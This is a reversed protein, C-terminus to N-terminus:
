SRANRGAWKAALSPFFYKKLAIAQSKKAKKGRKKKGKKARKGM